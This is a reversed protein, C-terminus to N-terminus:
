IQNEDGEVGRNFAFHGLLNERLKNPRRTQLLGPEQKSLIEKWTKWGYRARRRNKFTKVIESEV